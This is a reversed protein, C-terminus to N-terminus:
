PSEQHPLPQEATAPPAVEIRVPVFEKVRDWAAQDWTIKVPVVTEVIQKLFEVERKAIRQVDKQLRTVKAARASELQQRRQQCMASKSNGHQM